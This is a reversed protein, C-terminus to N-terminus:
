EPFDGGNKIWDEVKKRKIKPNQNEIGYKIIDFYDFYKPFNAKKAIIFNPFIGRYTNYERVSQNYIEINKNLVDNFENRSNEIMLNQNIEYENFEFEVTFKDSKSKESINIFYILSDNQINRKKLKVNRSKISEVYNKWNLEVKKSRTELSSIVNSKYFFYIVTFILIFGIFIVLCGRLYKM